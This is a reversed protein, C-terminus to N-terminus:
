ETEDDDDGYSGLVLPAGIFILMLEPHKHSPQRRRKSSAAQLHTCTHRENPTTRTERGTKIGRADTFSHAFAPRRDAPTLSNPRQTNFSFVPRRLSPSSIYLAEVVCPPVLLSAAGVRGPGPLINCITYVLEAFSAPHAFM